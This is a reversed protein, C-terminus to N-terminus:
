CGAVARPRDVRPAVTRRVWGDERPVLAGGATALSGTLREPDAQRVCLVEVMPRPLILLVHDAHRRGVRTSGEEQGVARHQHRELRPPRAVRACRRRADANHRCRRPIRSRVAGVWEPWRRASIRRRAYLLVIRTCNVRGCALASTAADFVRRLNPAVLTTREVEEHVLSVVSATGVARIIPVAPM